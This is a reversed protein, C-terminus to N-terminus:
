GQKSIGYRGQFQKTRMKLVELVVGEGFLGISSMVSLHNQVCKTEEDGLSVQLNFGLCGLERSVLDNSKALVNSVHSASETKLGDV